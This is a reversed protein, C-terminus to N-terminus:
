CNWVPTKFSNRLIHLNEAGHVDVATGQKPTSAMFKLCCLSDKPIQHSSLCLVLFEKKQQQLQKPTKTRETFPFDLIIRKELTNKLTEM